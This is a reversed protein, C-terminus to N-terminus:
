PKTVILVTEEEFGHYPEAEFNRIEVDFGAKKLRDKLGQASYVRVHDDQGFHKAREEPSTISFDEYIEVAKFPTQIIAKGQPKMVRFLEDMAKADDPVHELVHYCIVLSISEAPLDLATIDFKHDAIFNDSLDTSIYKISKISKMMRWLSRSPSFDLVTVGDKLFSENLIKWLRRNRALSGCSPCLLDKNPQVIFASLKKNCINCAHRNGSYLAAYPKRFLLEHRLLRQRSVARSLLKKLFRYM